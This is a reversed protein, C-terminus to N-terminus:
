WIGPILHFEVEKAYDVYGPLEDTLLKDELRTRIILLVVHIMEPILGWLSGLLLPTMLIFILRGLYGPHRVIRYPGEQCVVQDRDKQIRVVSSFFRNIKMAWFWVSQGLLFFIVALMYILPSFKPSWGFRGADLGSIIIMILFLIPSLTLYPFKSNKRIGGPSKREALLSKNSRLVFYEAALALTTLGIFLWGQWYDWRGALLLLILTLPIPHELRKLSMIGIKRKRPINTEM